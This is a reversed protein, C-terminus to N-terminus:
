LGGLAEGGRFIELVDCEVMWTVEGLEKALETDPMKSIWANAAHLRTTGNNDVCQFVGVGGGTQADLIALNSLADNVTSSAM